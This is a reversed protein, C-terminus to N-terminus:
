LAFGAFYVMQGILVIGLVFAGIGHVFFRLIQFSIEVDIIPFHSPVSPGAVENSALSVQSCRLHSGPRKRM